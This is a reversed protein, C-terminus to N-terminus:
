TMLNSGEYIPNTGKDFLGWLPGEGWCAFNGHSSLQKNPLLDNGSVLDAPVKIALVSFYIQKYIM